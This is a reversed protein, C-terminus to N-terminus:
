ISQFTTILDNFVALAEEIPQSTRMDVGADKLLDIPDKSGGSSLFAKYAAVADPGDELIHKSLAVAASFGTAYQYVYFPSNFFHPVRSWEIAIAPDVTVHEGHYKKVLAYYTDSLFRATLTTGADYATFVQQEFEAFMTQRYVTSRFQEMFHNILYRRYTPDSTTALLHQMLLSENVTSAVEAVFICYPAQSVHQTKQSLYSHMAHGMEHALTFLTDINAMYNMLVYPHPAGNCGWSYAGSRKGKNEYKDIWRNDFAEKLLAVYDEGLPAMAELVITVAEDFTIEKNFDPILPTYLDYMHLTDVGQVEKRLGFYAHLLPLHKNVTTILTDYVSEPINNADLSQERASDFHRLSAFLSAQQVNASYLSATTNQFAAYSEYVREFVEKRFAADESRLLATFNGHTLQLQSGDPSTVTPFQLDANNFMGYAKRPAQAIEEFKAFLSETETDLIHAKQRLVESIFRKYQNLEPTEEFFAECQSSDLKSLLSAAFATKSEFTIMLKESQSAMDQSTPNTSDEDCKLHTYVYLRGVEKELAFYADLSELLTTSDALLCTAYRSFDDIATYCQAISALAEESTQYFDELRWTDQEPVDARPRLTHTAM